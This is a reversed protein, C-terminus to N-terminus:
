LGRLLSALTSLVPTKVGLREGRAVVAGQLIDVETARGARVDQLMSPETSAFESRTVLLMMESIAPPLSTGEAAAVAVVEAMADRVLPELRDAVHGATQRTLACIANFPANWVMKEWLMQAPDDARRVGLNARTFLETLEAIVADQGPRFPALGVRASGHLYVRGPGSLGSSMYAVAAVVRQAGVYEACERESDLGNLMPLVVGNPSLVRYLEGAVEALAAHKVCLLVVDFIGRCSELTSVRLPGTTVAQSEADLRLGTEALAHGHEGRAVFTVDAGSAVLRAGLVGGVGGVGVVLIRM